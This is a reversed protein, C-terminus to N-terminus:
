TLQTEPQREVWLMIGLSILGLIAFSYVLPLVTTDYNQGIAIGIAMCIYTTLSGVVASGLGALKGLPEMALTNFNGFLIGICFFSLMMYIMFSWLQPQGSALTAPILFLIALITMTILAIKSLKRMGFKMVLNANTLSAAGISLSLIAFYLPFLETIGYIDQFIQQASTLYGIFAGFIIGAALTYALAQKNTLITKLGHWFHGFTLSIRHEKALTEPQRCAFWFLVISALLFFSYFIAQWDFLIMISQGLAPAITPVIIFVSMIFSMIRAMARGEFQDRVLAVSITRPGSAGVGQLLRGLLMINFDSATASIISGIIFITLGCYIVPKRGISDSWPGFFIQGTALGLFIIGIVLQVDNPKTVALEQGLLPLAPMMADISLASLSMLFAILAIFEGSRLPTTPRTFPM